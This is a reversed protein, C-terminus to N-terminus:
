FAREGAQRTNRNQRRLAQDESEVLQKLNEVFYIRLEQSLRGNRRPFTTAVLIDGDQEWIRVPQDMDEASVIRPPGYKSTLTAISDAFDDTPNIFFYLPHGTINSFVLEIYRFPMQHQEARHYTLRTTNHERRGGMPPNLRQNLDDLVALHTELFQQNVVTLDIPTAHAIADSGLKESLTKRLGRSLVTTRDLDFFTFGGSSLADDAPTAIQIDRQSRTLAIVTFIVVILSGAALLVIILNRQQSPTM